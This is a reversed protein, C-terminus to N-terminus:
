SGHGRDMNDQAQSRTQRWIHQVSRIVFGIHPPSSRQDRRAQVSTATFGVPLNLASPVAPLRGSTLLSRTKASHCVSDPIKKGVQSMQVFNPHASTLGYSAPFPQGMTSAGYSYNSAFPLGLDCPQHFSNFDQRLSSPQESSSILGGLGLGLSSSAPASGGVNQPLWASQTMTTEPLNNYVGQAYNFPSVPQQLPKQQQQALFPESMTASFPPPSHLSFSDGSTSTDARSPTHIDVPTPPDSVSCSSFPILTSAGMQLQKLMRQHHDQQRHAYSNNDFDTNASHM